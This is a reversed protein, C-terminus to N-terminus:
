CRGTPAVLNSIRLFGYFSLLFACRYVPANDFKELAVSINYMDELSLVGKQKKVHPIQIHLAWLLYNSIMTNSLWQSPLRYLTVNGKIASAYNSIARPSLNCAVLFELFCIAFQSCFVCDVKNRISYCLFTHFHRKYSSITKPRYPHFGRAVADRM